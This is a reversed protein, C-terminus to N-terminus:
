DYISIKKLHSNLLYFMFEKQVAICGKTATTKKESLHLFIASGKGKITPDYNYGIVILIDYLHDKRWLKEGLKFNKTQFIKNYNSNNIDDCCIHDKKIVHVPLNTRPKKIRDSRYMVYKLPFTGIPTKLDGEKKYSTVGNKGLYCKNIHKSIKILGTKKIIIEM